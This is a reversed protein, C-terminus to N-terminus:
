YSSGPAPVATLAPALLADLANLFQDTNLGGTEIGHIKGDASIFVTTPLGVVRFARTAEENKDWLLPFDWGAQRAFAQADVLTDQGGPVIGVVILGDGQFMQYAHELLPAEQQCPKCWSAWFNIVLAKGKWLSSDMPAGSDLAPLTFHPAEGLDGSPTPSASATPAATPSATALLPAPTRTGPTATPSFAAGESPRLNLYLVVGAIVAVFVGSIKLIREIQYNKRRM